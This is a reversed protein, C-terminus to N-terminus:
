QKEGLIAYVMPLKAGMKEIRFKGPEFEVTGKFCNYPSYDFEDLSKINIGNSILANVVESMGHNWM